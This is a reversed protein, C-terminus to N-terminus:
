SSRFDSWLATGMEMRYFARVRAKLGFIFITVPMRIICRSRNPLLALVKDSRFQKALGEWIRIAKCMCSSREYSLFWCTIITGHIFHGVSYHICSINCRSSLLHNKIKMENWKYVNILTKITIWLFVIEVM